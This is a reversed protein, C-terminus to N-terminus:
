GAFMVQWPSVTVALYGAAVCKDDTRALAEIDVEGHNPTVRVVTM